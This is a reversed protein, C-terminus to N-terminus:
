KPNKPPRGRRKKGPLAKPQLPPLAQAREVILPQAKPGPTLNVRANLWADQWKYGAPVESKIAKGQRAIFGNDALIGLAERWYEVARRPKDSNLLEEVTRTKPTYRTLLEARTPSIIGQATERPNCRWLHALALGICRAWDGGVKGPPISGLLEGLPLYQALQPLTLLREWQKSIVIEVAVPVEDFLARQLPKEVGHIRWIPSYLATDIIEGTHKDRYPITRSGIVTARDGYVLFKWLRARKEAIEAKTPNSRFWGIKEMVDDLDIWGGAYRNLPQPAPPALVSCVYLMALATDADQSSTLKKLDGLCLGDDDLSIEIRHNSDKPEYVRAQRQSEDRWITGTRGDCAAREWIDIEQSTYIVYSPSALAKPLLEKPAFFGHAQNREKIENQLTPLDVDAPLTIVLPKKNPIVLAVGGPAEFFTVALEGHLKTFRGKVGQIKLQLDVDREVVLRDPLTENPEVNALADFIFAVSAPDKVTLSFQKIKEM